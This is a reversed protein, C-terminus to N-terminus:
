GSRGQYVSDTPLFHYQHCHHEKKTRGADVCPDRDRFLCDNFLQVITVFPPDGWDLITELLLALVPGGGSVVTRTPVQEISPFPFFLM